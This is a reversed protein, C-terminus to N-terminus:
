GGFVAGGSLGPASTRHTELVDVGRAQRLCLPRRWYRRDPLGPICTRATAPGHGHHLKRVSLRLESILGQAAAAKSETGISISAM